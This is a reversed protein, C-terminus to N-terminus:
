NVRPSKSEPGAITGIIVSLSIVIMGTALVVWRDPATVLLAPADDSASGWMLALGSSVIIAGFIAKWWHEVPYQQRAMTYAAYGFFTFRFPFRTLAYGIVIGGLATVLGALGWHRDFAGRVADYGPTRELWEMVPPQSRTVANRISLALSDFTEDKLIASLVGICLPPVLVLWFGGKFVVFGLFAASFVFRLMEEASLRRKM